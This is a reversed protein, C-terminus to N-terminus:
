KCEEERWARLIRRYDKAAREPLTYPGFAKKKGNKFKLFIFPFELAIGEVKKPNVKRIRNM